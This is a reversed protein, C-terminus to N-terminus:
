LAACVCILNQKLNFHSMISVFSFNGRKKAWEKRSNYVTLCIIPFLEKGSKGKRKKERQLKSLLGWSSLFILWLLLPVFVMLLEM